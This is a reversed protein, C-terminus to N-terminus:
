YRKDTKKIKEKIIDSQSPYEVGYIKLCSEKIKERSCKQCYCKNDKDQNILKFYTKFMMDKESGCIDCSTKIIVHSGKSLDIPDVKITEYLIPNYKKYNDINQKTIRLEVHETLIM